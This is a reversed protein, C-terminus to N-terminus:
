SRHSKRPKIALRIERHTSGGNKYNTPKATKPVAPPPSNNAALLLNAAANSSDSEFKPDYQRPM